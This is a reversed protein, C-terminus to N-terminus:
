PCIYGALAAEASPVGYMECHFRETTKIQEIREADQQAQTAPADNTRLAQGAVLLAIVLATIVLPAWYGTTARKQTM